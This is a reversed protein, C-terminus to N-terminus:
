RGITKRKAQLDPASATDARTARTCVFRERAPQTLLRAHRVHRVAITQRRHGRVPHRQFHLLVTRRRSAQVAIVFASERHSRDTGAIVVREAGLDHSAATQM